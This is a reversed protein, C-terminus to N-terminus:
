RRTTSIEIPEQGPAPPLGEPLDPLVTTWGRPSNPSGPMDAGLLEPVSQTATQPMTESSEGASSEAEPAGGPGCAAILATAGATGSLKLFHRRSFHTSNPM